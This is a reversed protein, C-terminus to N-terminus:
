HGPSNPVYAVRIFPFGKVSGSSPMPRRPTQGIWTDMQDKLVADAADFEADMQETATKTSARANRPKAISAANASRPM